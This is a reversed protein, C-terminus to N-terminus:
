INNTTVAAIGLLSIMAVPIILETSVIGSIVTFIVLGTIKIAKNFGIKVKAKHELQQEYSTKTISGYGVYYTNDKTEFTRVTQM